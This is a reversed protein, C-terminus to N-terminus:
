EGLLRKNVNDEYVMDAIILDPREEVQEKIYEKTWNGSFFWEVTNEIFEQQELTYTNDKDKPTLEIGLTDLVYYVSDEEDVIEDTALNRYIAKYEVM